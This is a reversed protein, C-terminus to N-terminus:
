NARIATCINTLPTLQLRIHNTLLTRANVVDHSNFYEICPLRSNYFNPRVFVCCFIFLYNTGPSLSLELPLFPNFDIHEVFRFRSDMVPM